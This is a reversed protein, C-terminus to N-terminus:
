SRPVVQQTSGDTVLTVPTGVALPPHASDTHQDLTTIEGNDLQITYAMGDHSQAASEAATGAIAGAAMGGVVALAKGAGAGFQGGVVGGVVMGAIAGAGSNQGPQDVPAAAIIKGDQQSGPGSDVCGALCLCLAALAGARYSM